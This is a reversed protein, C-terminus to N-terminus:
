NKTKTPTDYIMQFTKQSYMGFYIGDTQGDFPLASSQKQGWDKINCM